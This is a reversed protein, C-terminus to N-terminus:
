RLWRRALWGGKARADLERMVLAARAHGIRQRALDRMVRAARRQRVVADVFDIWGELWGVVATMRGSRARGGLGQRRAQHLATASALVRAHAEAEEPRPATAAVRAAVLGADLLGPDDPSALRQWAGARAAPDRSALAALSQQAAALAIWRYVFDLGTGKINQTGMVTVRVGPPVALACRLVVQDGTSHPDEIVDLLELFLEEYAARLGRHFGEIARSGRELCEGLRAHLRAVVATRAVQRVWQRAVEEAAAPADVEPPEQPGAGARAAEAAALAWAGVDAQVERVVEALAVSAAADAVLWRTARRAAEARAAPGLAGGTGRAFIELQEALAEARRPVVRLRALLKGLRWRAAEGGTAESMDEPTVVVQERLFEALASKVYGVLGRTNTGLIVHRDVAVDEVLVRAFVQSRAVRDERNNVATIVYHDPAGALDLRDCGTRRWNSLFGTRENASCGNLFEVVRGRVRAPGFRKLVGLDPVVHRAMTVIALTPDVGLEAAMRAVLAVNRPHEDYPLLALLDPAILDGARDDVATLATRNREAAARIVPLFNIESTVVRSRDPVFRAIVEAVDMGAPGQIDEHDPYANTITALDDRMWHRQLIEVYAPTLAMCEWLFVESRLEAALRLLTRQEWITAKGYPRFTFIELPPGQPAAHLFMAECGTTKAFVSYGLGHLLGLKLRETGSKGRTGWGGIVLPIAARARGVQRRRVYAGLCVVLALGLLFYALAQQSNASVSLFYHGHTALWEYLEPAAVVAAAAARESRMPPPRLEAEPFLARLQAPVVRRAGAGTGGVMDGAGGSGTGGVRDGAGGSGTGGAMDRAGGPGTDGAGGSVTGGVMDGAGGAGTGGVVDGAGGAGRIVKAAGEAGEGNLVEGAGPLPHAAFRVSVGLGRVAAVYRGRVAPEEAALSQLRLEAFWAYRLTLRLRAALRGPPGVRWALTCVGHSSVVEIAREGFLPMGLLDDVRPLHRGWGGEREVQVREGPVGTATVEHLLGSPARLTGRVVRGRGHPFAARKGPAPRRLEHLVRWARTAWRDGRRLVLRDGRVDADVGWDERTLGALVRGLLRADPRALGERVLRLAGTGGPAVKLLERALLETWAARTPDVRADIAELAAAAAEHVAAPREDHGALAALGAVIAAGGREGAARCAVLLPVTEAERTLSEVLLADAGVRGAVLLAWARVQPCAESRPDALLGLMAAARAPEHQAVAAAAAALGIRVHASPDGGAIAEALLDVAWAARVRRALEDVVLRRMLFGRGEADAAAVRAARARAEAGGTGSSLGGSGGGRADGESEGALVVGGLGDVRGGGEPGGALVSGGAEDHAAGAAGVAGDQDARPEGPEEVLDGLLTRLVVGGPAAGAGTRETDAALEGLLAGLVSSEGAGEGGASASSPGDTAGGIVEGTGPALRASSSAGTGPALGASASEDSGARGGIDALGEGALAAAFIRPAEGPAVCTWVGIAAARVWAHEEEDIARGRMAAAIAGDPDAAGLADCWQQLGAIAAARLTFRPVWSLQAVLFEALGARRLPGAAAADAVLRGLGRGVLLVALEVEVEIAEREGAFRERLAELDLDRRLARLDGRLRRRDAVERRLVAALAALKGAETPAAHVEAEARAQRLGVAAHAERLGAVARPAALVLGVLTEGGGALRQALRAIAPGRLRAVLPDMLGSITRM